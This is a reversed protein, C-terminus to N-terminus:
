HIAPTAVKFLHRVAYFAPESDLIIVFGIAVANNIEAFDRLSDSNWDNEIIMMMFEAVAAEGFTIGQM